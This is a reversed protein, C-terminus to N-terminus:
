HLTENTEEWNEVMIGPIRGLHKVNATVVVMDNELATTGILLDFDDLRRGQKELAAKVIGYRRLSTYMPIVDFLRTIKIIDDFHSAKGSKAAGYFLEAITIESIHCHSQGVALVRKFVELNNKLIAICVNTDLLYEHEVM